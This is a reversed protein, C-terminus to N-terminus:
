NTKKDKQALKKNVLDGEIKIKATQQQFHDIIIQRTTQEQVGPIDFQTRDPM